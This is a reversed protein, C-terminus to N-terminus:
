FFITSKLTINQKYHDKNVENEIVSRYKSLKGLNNYKNYYLNYIVLRFYEM